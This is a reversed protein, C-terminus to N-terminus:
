RREAVTVHELTASKVQTNGEDFTLRLDSDNWGWGPCQGLHYTWHAPDQEDPAGLLAAVQPGSKGRLIDKDILDLAMGGRVCAPDSSAGAAAVPQRWAVPDFPLSPSAPRKFNWLLWGGALLVLFLAVLLWHRLKLKNWSM